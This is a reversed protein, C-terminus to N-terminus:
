ILGGYSRTMSRINGEPISSLSWKLTWDVREGVWDGKTETVFRRSVGRGGGIERGGDHRYPSAKTPGRPHKSANRSRSQMLRHNCRPGCCPCRGRHALITLLLNTSVISATNISVDLASVGFRDLLKEGCVEFLGIGSNEINDFLNTQRGDSNRCPPM